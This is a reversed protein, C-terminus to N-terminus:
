VVMGLLVNEYVLYCGHIVVINRMLRRPLLRPDETYEEAEANRCGERSGYEHIHKGLVTKTLMKRLM